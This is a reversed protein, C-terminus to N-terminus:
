YENPLIVQLVKNLDGCIYIPDYHSMFTVRSFFRPNQDSGLYSVSFAFINDINITMKRDIVAKEDQKLKRENLVLVGVFKNM